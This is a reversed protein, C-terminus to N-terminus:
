PCIPTFGVFINQKLYNGNKNWWPFINGNISVSIAINHQMVKAVDTLVFLLIIVTIEYVTVVGYMVAMELIVTNILVNLRVNNIVTKVLGLRTAVKFNNYSLKLIL